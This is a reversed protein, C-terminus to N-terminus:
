CTEQNLIAGLEYIRGLYYLDPRPNSQGMKFVTAAIAIVYGMTLTLPANWDLRAATAAVSGMM